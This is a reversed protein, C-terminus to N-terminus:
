HESSTLELFLNSSLKILLIAEMGFGVTILMFWDAKEGLRVSVELEHGKQEQLKQISDEHLTEMVKIKHMYEEASKLMEQEILKRKEEALQKMRDMEEHFKSNKSEM